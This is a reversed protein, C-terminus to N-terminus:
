NGLLRSSSGHESQQYSDGKEKTFLASLTETRTKLLRLWRSLTRPPVCSARSATKMWRVRTIATAWWATRTRRSSSPKTLPSNYIGEYYRYLSRESQLRWTCSVPCAAAEWGQWTTNDAPDQYLAARPHFASCRGKNSDETCSPTRKWGSAELTRPQHNQKAVTAEQLQQKGTNTPTKDVHDNTCQTYAIDTSALLPSWVGGPVPTVSLQPNGHSPSFQLGPRTPFVSDTSKEM